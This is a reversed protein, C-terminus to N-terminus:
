RGIVPKAWGAVDSFTVTHEGASLGTQIYGSDNWTGGDVRWKAGGDIAAQPLVTVMLAGMQQVYTGSANATQGVNITVTKNGPKTWGAVNKFEVTHQGV